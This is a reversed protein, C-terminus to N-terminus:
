QRGDQAHLHCLKSQKGRLNINGVTWIARLGLEKHISWDEAAKINGVWFEPKPLMLSCPSVLNFDMKERKPINGQFVRATEPEALVRTQLFTMIGDDCDIRPERELAVRRADYQSFMSEPQKM